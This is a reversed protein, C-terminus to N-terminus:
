PMKLAFGKPYRMDFTAHKIKSNKKSLKNYAKIFRQLRQKQKQYGLVVKINPKFTLQDINTKSFKTIQLPAALTQYHQYDKYLKAIIASDAKSRAIPANSQLIKQPMFLVGQTSIYGTCHPRNENKCNTNQWRMAVKRAKIKIQIANLFLRKIDAKEVWAQQELTQKIARLDLLYNNEILPQIRSMLVTKELVATPEIKWNINVAPFKIFDSKLISWIIAILGMLIFLVKGILM